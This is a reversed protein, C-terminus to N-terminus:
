HLLDIYELLVTVIYRITYQSYVRIFCDIVEKCVCPLTIPSIYSCQLMFIFAYVTYYLSTELYLYNNHM